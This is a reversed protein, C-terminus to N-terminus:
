VPNFSVFYRVRDAIRGSLAITAQGVRGQKEFGLAAQAGDHSWGAIFTGSIRLRDTDPLGWGFVTQTQESATPPPVATPPPSPAQAFAPLSSFLGLALALVTILNYM